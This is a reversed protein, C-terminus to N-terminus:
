NTMTLIKDIDHLLLQQCLRDKTSTNNHNLNSEQVTSMLSSKRQSQPPYHKKRLKFKILLFQKILVAFPLRM